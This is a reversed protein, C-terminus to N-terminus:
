RMLIRGAVSLAAMGLVMFFALRLTDSSSRRSLLAQLGREDGTEIALQLEREYRSEPYDRAQDETLFGPHSEPLSPLVALDFGLQNDPAFACFSTHGQIGKPLLQWLDRITKEDPQDRQLLIKGQDSLTQCGGLLFPSDGNQLVAQLTPVNRIPERVNELPFDSITGIKWNAPAISALLFPDPLREYLSRPLSRVWIQSGNVTGILVNKRKAFRVFLFEQGALSPNALASHLLTLEDHLAPDFAPSADIEGPREIRAQPMILKTKM